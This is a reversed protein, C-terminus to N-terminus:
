SLQVVTSGYQDVKFNTRPPIIVTSDYDELVAPGRGVFGRSLSRRDFVASEIPGQELYTVIRKSSVGTTRTGDVKRRSTFRPAPGHCNVRLNALEVSSRKDSYGYRRQHESHFSKVALAIKKRTLKGSTAIPLEYAQGTYRMDLYREFRVSGADVGQGVLSTLGQTEMKRLTRELVNVSAKTTEVLVTQVYDRSPVALLLGMSSFLGAGPPVLVKRIGLQKAVECAHMPGAGGFAVLLMGRPDKGREVSAARLASAINDIAIRLISHAAAQVTTKLRGAVYRRIAREALVPQIRLTGALPHESGLRGLVVQADTVTPLVGSNDYCAPGPDAGASAPGIHLVGEPDVHAISGGGTGVEVLDVQPFRVPYGSGELRRTGHFRGGVEYETTTEFKGQTWVGAKSTTGGVDLSMVNRERVLDGYYRAAVAGAVPGSEIVRAPQEIAQDSSITGGSSQMMYLPARVGVKALGDILRELYNSVVPQLCANVVTTNTREYERFEPLLESSLTTRINQATKELIRAFMKEHTPNAYSHLFSIAVSEAKIDRVRRALRVSDSPDIKRLIKGLYDIREDVEFRDRRPILPQPREVQLDYLFPRNQRGIEM